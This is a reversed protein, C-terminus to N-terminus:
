LATRSTRTEGVAGFHIQREAIKPSEHAGIHPRWAKGHKVIFESLSRLNADLQDLDICVAPTELESRSRGILSNDSHSFETTV